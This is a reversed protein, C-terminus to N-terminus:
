TLFHKNQHKLHHQIVCEMSSNFHFGNINFSIRISFIISIKIKLIRFKLNTINSDWFVSANKSFSISWILWFFNKYNAFNFICNWPGINNTVQFTFFNNSSKIFFFQLLSIAFFKSHFFYNSSFSVLQM